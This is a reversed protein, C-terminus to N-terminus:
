RPPAVGAVARADVIATATAASVLLEGPGALSSLRSTTNVADCLATFDLQQEGGGVAGVYAVGTHVAVGVSLDALGSRPDM